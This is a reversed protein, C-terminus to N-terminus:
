LRRLVYIRPHLGRQTVKIIQEVVWASPVVQEMLRIEHSILVFRAGPGAVRAAEALIRPYLTRNEQHSGVLQGFPLDATLASVSADPLPLVGADTKLLTVEDLHAAKLNQQACSLAAMELDCGLVARVPSHMNREIMLTGSGCALNLFVDEPTPHTLMIMAHAISANLAGEYNCVRWSRTLSPRPSLRVLVDWGERSRRIRVLLDGSDTVPTLGTHSCLEDRIRAMVSSDSGAASIYLTEYADSSKLQRAANILAMLLQFNQHGLLAKPRPVAYEQRVYAAIITRLQVLRTLDGSYGFQLAGREKHLQHISKPDVSALLETQAIEELGEVVELECSFTDYTTKAMHSSLTGGTPPVRQM